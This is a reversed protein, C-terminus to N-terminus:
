KAHYHLRLSNGVVFLSSLSMAGAALMPNLLLGFAPYLTGAALPILTVNYGYAWIFNHVIARMTRRSLGLANVIGRLDGSMLVVDGAEIAIDTGTGIAIGVDAQALAPADNIGDGVFAVRRGDGQLRLIEGAKDNPLVEAFLTEIGLEGAISEATRRTDGTMMAVDIGRAKLTKLTNACGDKVPDAIGIVAVLRNDVAAFVPTRAGAALSESMAREAEPVDIGLRVMYRESGAHVLHGEVRAEIGMGPEGQFGKAPLLEIGRAKAARVIARAAPHESRDEASAVLRLVDDVNVASAGGSVANFDTMEPQGMTLTGTKDLIVTDVKALIELATARRFLIGLQAGRGTAVIIATPTALGMACPCAILLVSVATVFAFNLALDGGVALWTAFTVVAIVMVIPVFVLAIRDALRQVPPKTAQAQEVMRVIQALVTDAGVRTANFLFSGAKNVTGGVVEHGAEKRVPVSEGTIMSEDVYSAGETVHGDVPIREGPRVKVIDGPLVADVPIETETGDRTVRATKPQLQILSRIAKSTRGRAIGELYRGLLVLTIIVGAAEFYANATGAPFVGPAVLVVLSYLYAANAGLMVLSNMGPNLHRLEGLGDRYFRLGAYFMIPSALLLEVAIWGREALMSLMNSHFPDFMRSMAVLVLPLTFAAAVVFDRRLGALEANREAQESDEYPSGSAAESAVFGAREVASILDRAGASGARLDVRARETALNVQASVVGPVRELVNEVRSVCSACTMGKIVLDRTESPVRFGARDIATAVEGPSVADADFVVDVREVALNVTVEVVGPLRSLIREVRAVCSACTMGKVPMSARRNAGSTGHDARDAIEAVNEM